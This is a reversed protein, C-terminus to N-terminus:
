HWEELPHHRNTLPLEVRRGERHSQYIGMIMEFAWRGETGSSPPETNTEIAQTMRQYMTIVPEKELNDPLDVPQWDSLQTPTGEMPRPLHWLNQGASGATRVALQGQSGLIDIGYNDNMGPQYDIFHIEGIIGTDFGYHAIAKTGMVLGSDRDGPSMEKAQMIDKPGALQNGNYITGSCWTPVGGFCLMMDTVHTGMEMFENGSKRGAKNRGRVMIVNGIAGEAVMTKAQQIGPNVHNQQNIALKAGSKKAATVMQDAETLDIAIPKECLVSIGQELAAVTPAYHGRTQTAVTVLDLNSHQYMQDFDTYRKEVAYEDGVQDVVEQSIDCLAVIEFEPLDKLIRLHHRGMGGCGVLGVRYTKTM